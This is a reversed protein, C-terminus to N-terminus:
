PKVEKEQPAAGPRKEPELKASIKLSRRSLIYIRQHFAVRGKATLSLDYAGSDLWITRLRDAKGAYAGDIYVEATKPDATLRVEGKDEAYLLSGSYVPSLAFPYNCWFPDCSFAPYAVGYPYFYSYSYPYYYPGSFHTYAMGFSVLGLQVHIKHHTKEDKKDTKSGAARQEAAQKSSDSAPSVATEQGVPTLEQAQCYGALAFMAYGTLIASLLLVRAGM